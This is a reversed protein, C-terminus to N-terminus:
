LEGICDKAKQHWRKVQQYRKDTYPPNELHPKRKKTFLQLTAQLVSQNKNEGRVLYEEVLDYARYMLEIGEVSMINTRRPPRDRQKVKDHWENLIHNFEALIQKKPFMLNLRLLLFCEIFSDIPEDPLREWPRLQPNYHHIIGRHLKHDYSIACEKPFLDRVSHPNLKSLINDYQTTKRFAAKLEEHLEYEFMNNFPSKLLWKEFDTRDSEPKQSISQVSANELLIQEYPKRNRKKKQAIIQILDELEKKIRDRDTQCFQRFAKTHFIAEEAEYYRLAMEIMLGEFTRDSMVAEKLDVEVRRV